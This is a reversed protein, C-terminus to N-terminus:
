PKREELIEKPTDQRTKMAPLVNDNEKHSFCINM